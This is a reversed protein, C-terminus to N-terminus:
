SLTHYTNKILYKIEKGKELVQRDKKLVYQVNKYLNVKKIYMSCKQFLYHVNKLDM